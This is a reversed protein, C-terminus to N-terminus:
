SRGGRNPRPLLHPPCLHCPLMSSLESGQPWGLSLGQGVSTTKLPPHMEVSSPSLLRLTRRADEGQRAPLTGRNQCSLRWENKKAPFPFPLPIYRPAAADESKGRRGHSHNLLTPHNVSCLFVQKIWLGYIFVRLLRFIGWFFLFFDWGCFWGVWWILFFFFLWSFVETRGAM